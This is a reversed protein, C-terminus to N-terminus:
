DGYAEVVLKSTSATTKAVYTTATVLKVPYGSAPPVIFADNTGIMVTVANTTGVNEFYTWGKATLGSLSIAATTTSCDVTLSVKQKNTQDLTATKQHTLPPLGGAVSNVRLQGLITIEDAM